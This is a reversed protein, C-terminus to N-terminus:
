ELKQTQSFGFRDLWAYDRESEATRNLADLICARHFRMVAINKSVALVADFNINTFRARIEELPSRTPTSSASANVETPEAKNRQDNAQKDAATLDPAADTQGPENAQTHVTAAVPEKNDNDKRSANEAANFGTAQSDGDHSSPASGSTSESDPELLQYIVLMQSSSGLNSKIQDYIRRISENAWNLAIENRGLRHLIWAKTDLLEASSEAQLALDIEELALELDKKALARFYALDNNEIPTRKEKPPFSAEMVGIAMDTRKKDKFRAATARAMSIRATAPLAPLLVIADEYLKQVESENSKSKDFAIEFRLNWFEPDIAIEPSIEAAKKLHSQAAEISGSEFDNAAQALLWRAQSRPGVLEYVV